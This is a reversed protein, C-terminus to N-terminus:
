TRELTTIRNNLEEEKRRLEYYCPKRADYTNRIWDRWEELLVLERRKIELEEYPIELQIM